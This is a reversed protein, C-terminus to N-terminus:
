EVRDDKGNRSPLSVEMEPCVTRYGCWACHTGPTADFNGRAIGEAVTVIRTEAERLAEVPRTTCVTSNDELNQFILLKVPKKASMALAYTSLQLSKDAVDQQKPRGTKYDVIVYGDDDEDVRDIRGGVRTGALETAFKHEVLVVRGHPIAAPSALFRRLQLDGDREYLRRQTPDDIKAKGFEELFYSVV